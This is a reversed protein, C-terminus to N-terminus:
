HIPRINLTMRMTVSCIKIFLYLKLSQIDELVVAVILTLPSHKYKLFYILMLKIESVM